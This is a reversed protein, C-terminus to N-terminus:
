KGVTQPYLTYFTGSVNKQLPGGSLSIRYKDTGSEVFYLYDDDRDTETWTAEQVNTEANIFAWVNGIGHRLLKKNLPSTTRFETFLLKVPYTCSAMFHHRQESGVQVAYEFSHVLYTNGNSSKAPTLLRNIMGGSATLAALVRANSQQVGAQSTVYKILGSSVLSGGGLYRLLISIVNGAIPVTKDDAISLLHARLTSASGSLLTYSELTGGQMQHSLWSSYDSAGIQVYGKENSISTFHLDLYAHFWSGNMYIPELNLPDECSFKANQYWSSDKAQLDGGLFLLGCILLIQKVNVNM